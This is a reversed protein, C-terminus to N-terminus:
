SEAEQLRKKSEKYKLKEINKEKKLFSIYDPFAVIKRAKGLWVYAALDKQFKIKVPNAPAAKNIHWASGIINKSKPTKKNAAPMNGYIKLQQKVIEEAEKPEPIVSIFNVHLIALMGPSKEQFEVFYDTKEAFNVFCFIDTAFILTFSVTFFFNKM